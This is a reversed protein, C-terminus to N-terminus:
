CSYSSKNDDNLARRYSQKLIDVLMNFVKTNLNKRDDKEGLKIM